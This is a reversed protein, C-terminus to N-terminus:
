RRRRRLLLISGTLALLASSPEPIVRLTAEDTNLLGGVTFDDVLITGSTLAGADRWGFYIALDRGAADVGAPAGTPDTADKIATTTTDTNTYSNQGAGFAQTNLQTYRQFTDPTEIADIVNDRSFYIAMRPNATMITDVGNVVSDGFPISWTYDNSDPAQTQKAVFRLPIDILFGDDSMATVTGSFLLGVSENPENSNGSFADISGVFGVPTSGPNPNFVTASLPTATFNHGMFTFPAISGSGTASDSQTYSFNVLGAHASTALASVALVSALLTKRM